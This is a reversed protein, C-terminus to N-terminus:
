QQLKALEAMTRQINKALATKQEGEATRYNDMMEILNSIRHGIPTGAGAAVRKAILDRRTNEYELNLEPPEDKPMAAAEKKIQEIFALLDPAVWFWEGEVRLHAFMKHAAGESIITNPVIALITVPGLSSIREKPAGSHGIKIRGERQVFYTHGWVGNISHDAFKRLPVTEACISGSTGSDNM